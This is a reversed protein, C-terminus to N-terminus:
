RSSSFRIINQTMVENKRLLSKRREIRRGATAFRGESIGRGVKVTVGNGTGVSSMGVWVDTGSSALFVWVGNVGVDIGGMLM